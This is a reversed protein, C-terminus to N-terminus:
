GITKGIRTSANESAARFEALVNECDKMGLKPQKDPDEPLQWVVRGRANRRPPLLKPTVQLTALTKRDTARVVDVVWGSGNPDRRTESVELVAEPAPCM